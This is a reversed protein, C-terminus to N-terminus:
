GALGCHQQCYALHIRRETDKLRVELMHLALDHPLVRIFGEGFIQALHVDAFQKSATKWFPVMEHPKSLNTPPGQFGAGGSNPLGAIYCSADTHKWLLDLIALTHKNQTLAHVAPASAGASRLHWCQANRMAHVEGNGAHHQGFGKDFLLRGRRHKLEHTPGTPPAEAVLSLYQCTLGPPLFQFTAQLFPM